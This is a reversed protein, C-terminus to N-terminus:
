NLRQRRARATRVIHRVGDLLQREQEESLRPKVVDFEEGGIIRLTAWERGAESHTDVLRVQEEDIMLLVLAYCWLEIREHGKLQFAHLLPLFERPIKSKQRAGRRPKAQGRANPHRNVTYGWPEDRRPM